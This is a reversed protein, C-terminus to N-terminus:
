GHTASQAPRRGRRCITGGCSRVQEEVFARGEEGIMSIPLVIFYADQNGYLLMLDRGSWARCISSWSLNSSQEDQQVTITDCDFCVRTTRELLARYERRKDWMSNAAMLAATGLGVAVGALFSQEQVYTISAALLLAAGTLWYGRSARLYVMRWVRRSERSPMTYTFEYQM